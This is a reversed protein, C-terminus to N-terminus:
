GPKGYIIVEGMRERRKFDSGLLGETNDLRTALLDLSARETEPSGRGM